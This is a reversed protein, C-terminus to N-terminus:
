GTRALDEAIAVEFRRRRAEIREQRSQREWEPSRYGWEDTGEAGPVLVRRRVVNERVVLAFLEGTERRQGVLMGDLVHDFTLGLRQADRDDSLAAGPRLFTDILYRLWEQPAYPKEVGDWHLCCGTGCCTWPCWLGPMGAHTRNYSDVDGTPDNDAPHQVVDLPSRDGCHRTGNFGRLFEIEDANLAPTIRVHGLYDTHLGM